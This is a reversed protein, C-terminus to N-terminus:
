VSFGQRLFGFFFLFFLIKKFYTLRLFNHKFFFDPWVTACAKLGLVQSASAPPDRLELEAQDVSHTEPCGPSCLSIRDWFCVFLCVFLCLFVSSFSQRSTEASLPVHCQVQLASNLGQSAMTSPSGVELGRCRTGQSDCMFWQVYVWFYMSYILIHLKCKKFFIVFYWIACLKKFKYSICEAYFLLIKRKRTITNPQQKRNVYDQYSHLLLIRAGLILSRFECICLVSSIPFTESKLSFIWSPVLSRVVQSLKKIGTEKPKIPSWHFVNAM